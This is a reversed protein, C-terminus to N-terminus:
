AYARNEIPSMTNEIGSQIKYVGKAFQHDTSIHNDSKIYKTGFKCGHLVHDCDGENERVEKSILDLADRGQLYKYGRTQLVDNADGIDKLMDVKTKVQRLYSATLFREM